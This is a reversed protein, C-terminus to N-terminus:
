WKNSTKPFWRALAAKDSSKQSVWQQNNTLGEKKWLPVTNKLHDMIFCAAEFAAQRHTAAVGVFVIQENAHLEGIRHILKINGLQWLHKAELCLQHLCQETMEPYHEIFMSSVEGADNFDRVLGTFTVVAGCKGGNACLSKYETAMDFDHTQVSIM